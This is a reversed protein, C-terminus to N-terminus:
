PPAQGNQQMARARAAQAQQQAYAQIQAPTPPAAQAPNTHTGCGSLALGTVLLLVGGLLAHFGFLTKRLITM